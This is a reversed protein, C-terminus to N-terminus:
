WATCKNEWKFLYVLIKDTNVYVYIYKQRSTETERRAYRNEWEFLYVLIEDLRAYIYMYLRTIKRTLDM